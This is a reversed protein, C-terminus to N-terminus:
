ECDVETNGTGSFGFSDLVNSYIDIQGELFGIKSATLNNVAMQRHYEEDKRKIYANFSIRKVIDRSIMDQTVMQKEINDIKSAHAIIERQTFDVIHTYRYIGAGIMEIFLLIVAYILVITLVKNKKYFSDFLKKADFIM